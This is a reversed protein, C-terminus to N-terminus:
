TAVAHRSQTTAAGSLRVASSWILDVNPDSNQVARYLWITLEAIPLNTGAAVLRRSELDAAILKLPLWAVGAGSLAQARLAEAFASEYVLRLNLRVSSLNILSATVKGLFSDPAYGLYPVAESNAQHLADNWGGPAKPAMVAMMQETDVPIGEFGSTLMPNAVTDSRYCLLFQSSGQLLAEVCDHLNDAIVKATIKADKDAVTSWWGPFFDVALSHPMALKLMSGSQSKGSRAEDRAAKIDRVVREAVPLLKEGAPTLTIPYSSRDLLPAGIWTELAKLRRSFAPQTVNRSEAARSFNGSSVVAIFDELLKLEM